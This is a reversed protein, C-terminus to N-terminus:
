KDQERKERISKEGLPVHAPERFSIRHLNIHTRRNKLSQNAFHGCPQCKSECYSGAESWYMSSKKRFTACLMGASGLPCSPTSPTTGSSGPARSSLLLRAPMM